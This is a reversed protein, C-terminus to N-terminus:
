KKKKERITGDQWLFYDNCVHSNIRIVHSFSVDNEICWEIVKIEAEIENAAEVKCRWTRDGQFIVSWVFLQQEESDSM